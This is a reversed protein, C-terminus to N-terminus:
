NGAPRICLSSIGIKYASSAVNKTNTRIEIFQLGSDAQAVSILNRFVVNNVAGVSYLDHSFLTTQVGGVVMDFKLIGRDPGTKTVIDVAYFVPIATAPLVTWWDAYDLTASTANNNFEGNCSQATDTEWAWTGHTTYDCQLPIITWSGLGLYYSAQPSVQQPSGIYMQAIGM